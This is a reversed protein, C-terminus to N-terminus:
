GRQEGAERITSRVMYWFIAIYCCNQSNLSITNEGDIVQNISKLYVNLLDDRM